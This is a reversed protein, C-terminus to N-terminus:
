YIFSEKTHVLDVLNNSSEIANASVWLFHTPFQHILYILFFFLFHLTKLETSNGTIKSRKITLFQTEKYDCVSYQERFHPVSKFFPEKREIWHSRQLVSATAAEINFNMSSSSWSNQMIERNRQHQNKM